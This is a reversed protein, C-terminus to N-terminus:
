PEGMLFFWVMKRLKVIHDMEWYRPDQVYTNIFTEFEPWENRLSSTEENMERQIEERKNKLQELHQVRHLVQAWLAEEAPYLAEPVIGDTPSIIQVM